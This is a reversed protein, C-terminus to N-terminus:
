LHHASSVNLKLDRHTFENNHMLNLGDLVQFIVERVEIDPLKPNNQLYSHLDGLQLYEM